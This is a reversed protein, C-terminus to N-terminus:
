FDTSLMTVSKWAAIVNEIRIVNTGFM